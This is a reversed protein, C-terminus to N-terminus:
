YNITKLWAGADTETKIKVLAKEAEDKTTFSAYSVGYLDGAKSFKEAKFGKAKLTEILKDANLENRFMGAVIYYRTGKVPLNESLEEKSEKIKEAIVEKISSDLTATLISDQKVVTDTVAVSEIIEIKKNFLGKITNRLFIGALGINVMIIICTWILITRTKMTSSQHNVKAESSTIYPRPIENEKDVKKEIITEPEKAIEASRVEEKKEVESAKLPEQIEVPQPPQSEAKVEVSEEISERKEEQIDAESAIELDSFEEIEIPIEDDKYLTSKEFVANPECLLLKGSPNKVLDGLNGLAFYEGRNLAEIIEQTFEEIRKNAEDVDIKDNKAIYEALIGDNYQLFENFIVILPNRQKVIFAGLEPIILRNNKELIEIIYDIM